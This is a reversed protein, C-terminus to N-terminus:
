SCFSLWQLERPLAPSLLLPPLRLSSLSLLGASAVRLASATASFVRQLNWSACSTWTSSDQLTLLVSSFWAHSTPLAQCCLSQYGDRPCPTGTSSSITVRELTRAQSIGHVSPGPPSCALPHCFFWVCSSVLCCCDINIISSYIWLITILLWKHTKTLHM